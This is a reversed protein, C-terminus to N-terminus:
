EHLLHIEIEGFEVGPFICLVAEGNLLTEKRSCARQAGGTAAALPLPEGKCAKAWVVDDEDIPEEWIVRGTSTRITYLGPLIGGVSGRTEAPSLSISGVSAGDREVTFEITCSDGVIRMFRHFQKLGQRYRPQSGLAAIRIFATKLAANKEPQRLAEAIIPMFFLDDKM